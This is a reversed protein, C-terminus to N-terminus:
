SGRRVVGRIRAAAGRVRDGPGGAGDAAPQAALAAAAAMADAMLRDPWRAADPMPEAVITALAQEFAAAAEDLDPWPTARAAAAMRALQERDGALVSRFREAGRDDDPEVLFGNVGHEIVDSIGELASSAIVVRGALVDPLPDGDLVVIAAPAAADATRAVGPTVSLCRADPRQQALTRAVWPAAAIFDVPLDYSLQAALRQPDRGMREHAFGDVHYVFRASDFAFLQATATWDFAVVADYRRERAATTDACSAVTLAHRDGLRQAHQAAAGRGPAVGPVLFCLDV